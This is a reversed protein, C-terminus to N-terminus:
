AFSINGLPASKYYISGGEEPATAFLYVRSNEEDLVIIPRTLNDANRGFIHTQWGTAPHREALMIVPAAADPSEVDTLSTKLAAYVRGTSDTALSIHDDACLGTCNSDPLIIEETQWANEPDGDQHVSFYYRSNLQNSWLIGTRDGDVATIVSIDDTSVNVAEASLPLVFPEAWDLELSLSHNVM